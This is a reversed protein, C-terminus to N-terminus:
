KASSVGEALVAEEVASGAATSKCVGSCPSDRQESSCCGFPGSEFTRGAKEGESSTSLHNPTM